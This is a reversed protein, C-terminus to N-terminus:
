FRYTITANVRRRLLEGNADLIEAGGGGPIQYHQHDLLNFGELGLSLGTKSISYSIRGNLLWYAPIQVVDANPDAIINTINVAYFTTEDVWHSWTALLWGNLNTEIGINVKHRPGGEIPMVADLTGSIHQYAYNFFGKTQPTFLFETSLEGGWAQTEGTYNGFTARMIIEEPLAEEVLVFEPTSIMHKLHYHFGTTKFHLKNFTGTYALEYLYLEEPDTQPNGVAQLSVDIPFPIAINQIINVNAETLTPNRFSTGISFRFVHNPNPLFILSGKPSFAWGTNPNHDMRGSAVVSWKDHFLWVGEGFGAWDNQTVRPRVFINSVMVSRRFSAGVVWNLFDKSKFAHEIQVDYIDPNFAIETPSFDRVRPRGRNWFARLRTSKREADIRLFSTHGDLLPPGSGGTAFQTTHDAHGGSVSLRLGLGNDYGLWGSIKKVESAELDPNEFQHTTRVGVSTKFSINGSRKGFVADGLHTQYEGFRYRVQGGNIQDPTKTIINIVGNVANAGYLASAPGLVVEIRDIEAMTVSLGEWYVADFLGNLVTRGDIQVLIRNNLAKNLGRISVEGYFTRTTMVDVGPITRLADWLTQVGITEMEKGTIVYVTAPTQQSSLPVRSATVVNFVEAEAEFFDFIDAALLPKANMFSLIFSLLAFYYKM